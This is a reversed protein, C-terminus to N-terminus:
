RPCEWPKQSHRWNYKGADVVRKHWFGLVRAQQMRNNDPGLTVGSDLSLGSISAWHIASSTVFYKYTRFAFSSTTHKTPSNLAM